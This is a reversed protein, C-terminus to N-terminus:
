CKPSLTINKIKKFSGIHFHYIKLLYVNQFLDPDLKAKPISINAHAHPTM